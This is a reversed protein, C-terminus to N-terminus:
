VRPKKAAYIEFKGDADTMFTQHNNLKIVAFPLAKKTSFDKVIGNIQQQAQISLCSFLLIILLNKM